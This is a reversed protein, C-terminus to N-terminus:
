FAFASKGISRSVALVGLVRHRNKWYIVRGGADEIRACEDERNPQTSVFM